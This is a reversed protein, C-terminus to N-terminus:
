VREHVDIIRPVTYWASAMILSASSSSAVAPELSYALPEGGTIPMGVVVARVEDGYHLVYDAGSAPGSPTIPENM